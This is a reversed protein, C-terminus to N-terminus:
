VYEFCRLLYNEQHYIFTNETMEYKLSYNLNFKKRSCYSCFTIHHNVISLLLVM